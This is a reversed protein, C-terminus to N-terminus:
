AIVQVLQGLGSVVVSPAAVDVPTLAVSGSPVTVLAVIVLASTPPIM